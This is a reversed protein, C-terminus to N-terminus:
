PGTTLPQTANTHHRNPRAVRAVQGRQGELLEWGQGGADKAALERQLGADRLEAAQQVAAARREAAVVSNEVAAVLRPEVATVQNLMPLLLTPQGLCRALRNMGM